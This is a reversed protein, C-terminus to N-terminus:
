ARIKLLKVGYAVPLGFFVTCAIMAIVFGSLSPPKWAGAVLVIFQMVVYVIIGFTLGSPLPMEAVNARTSAIYAYGIGWAIAVLALLVLGLWANAEAPAASKGLAISAASQWMATIPAHNPYLTTLYVFASYFAGGIIGAIPGSILVRKTM